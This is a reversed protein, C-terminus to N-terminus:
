SAPNPRNGLFTTTSKHRLFLTLDGETLSRGFSCGHNWADNDVPRSWCVRVLFTSWEFTHEDKVQLELVAGPQYRRPAQLLVGTLSVDCVTATWRLPGSALPACTAEIQTPFRRAQRRDPEEKEVKVTLTEGTQEADPRLLRALEGCSAPRMEPKADLALLLASHIAESLGPLRERPAIFDNRLKRGLTTMNGKDPFPSEGLLAFYLTAAMGYVDTRADVHKADGFQEPAMYAITGIWAGSHTLEGEADLDKVLGLDTIKAIGGPAILVNEPKLDRHILNAAHAVDLASALQAALRVLNPPDIPGHQAVLSCLDPGEIFEMVLYPRGEHIGHALGQVIHPHRLRAAAGCEQLFRRRMTDNAVLEAAMIKLAVIQGTDSDFARYVTGMGGKGIMNLVTYKGINNM